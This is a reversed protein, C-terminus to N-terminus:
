TRVLAVVDGSLDWANHAAGKLLVDVDISHESGDWPDSVKYTEPWVQGGPHVAGGYGHIVVYHRYFPTPTDNWPLNGPIVLVVVPKGRNLSTRIHGQVSEYLPGTGVDYAGWTYQWDSPPLYQNIAEPMRGPFTVGHFENTGLKDALTAQSPASRGLTALLTQVSGPGCWNDREQVKAEVKMDLARVTLMWQGAIGFTAEAVAYPRRMDTFATYCARRGNTTMTPCSDTINPGGGGFALRINVQFNTYAGPAIFAVTRVQTRAHNYELCVQYSTGNHVRSDSCTRNAAPPYEHWIAAQAPAPLALLGLLAALVVFLASGARRPRTRSTIKLQSM